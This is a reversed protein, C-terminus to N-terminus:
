LARLVEDQANKWQRISEFDIRQMRLSIDGNLIGEILAPMDDLYKHIEIESVSEILRTITMMEGTGMVGKFRKFNLLSKALVIHMIDDVIGSVPIQEECVITIYDKM